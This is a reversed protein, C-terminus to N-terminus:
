PAELIKKLGDRIAELDGLGFGAVLNSDRVLNEYAELGHKKIWWATYIHPNFEHTMNAGYCQGTGNRLDWRVSHKSRTILHAVNEIRGCGLVCAGGTERSDRARVALSYLRDLEAILRKRRTKAPVKGSKFRLRARPNSKLRAPRNAAQPAKPAQDGCSAGTGSSIAQLANNDALKSERRAKRAAIKRKIAAFDARNLRMTTM